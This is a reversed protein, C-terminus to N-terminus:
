RSPSGFPAKRKHKNGRAIEPLSLMTATGNCNQVSSRKTELLDQYIKDMGKNVMALDAENQVLGCIRSWNPALSSFADVTKSTGKGRKTEYDIDDLDNDDNADFHFVSPSDPPSDHCNTVTGIAVSSASSFNSIIGPRLVTFNLAELFWNLDECRSSNPELILTEGVV